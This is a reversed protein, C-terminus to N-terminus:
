KKAGKTNRTKAATTPKDSPNIMISEIIRRGLNYYTKELDIDTHMSDKEFVVRMPHDAKLKKIKAMDTDVHDIIRLITTSSAYLSIAIELPNTDDKFVGGRIGENIVATLLGWLNNNIAILEAALNGHDGIFDHEIDIMRALIRFYGTNKRFFTYYAKGSRVLKDVPNKGANIEKGMISYLNEMASLVIELFLQEKSKFYLYLTGKSLECERAIEEMTTGPLGKKLFLKEGAKVIENRRKEKERVKREISGM